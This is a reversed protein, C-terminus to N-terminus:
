LDSCHFAYCRRLWKPGAMEMGSVELEAISGPNGALPQSKMLRMIDTRDELAIIEM